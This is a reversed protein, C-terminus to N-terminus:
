RMMLFLVNTVVSLGLLIALGAIINTRSNVYAAMETMEAATAGGAIPEGFDDDGSSEALGELASAKQSAIMPPDGAMLCKLDLLLDEPNRYREERNKAMMTEVVEGFGSSLTTNLHDPPTLIVDKAVHKKMVETTTEGSYPVQGTVMHYLTAGLSYIDSRIDVDVQGRVQEPSIYYPTGIAMGAEAMAWKEDSTLRALGLDALKVNGDKTLIVNEPKIDRHILGKQHAHKLAEAVPIVIKLATKEDFVRGKELFDKITEGQVYEMVFYYHGNVEGADIANVVNNHSLKAAIKAERDFRKIFEKNQALQDLLVKVAVIRDVSKQKARYVVGMSGKGILELNEYGPIELKRQPETAVEQFLRRAQSETLAKAAIMVQLLGPPEGREKAIRARQQKCYELEQPTALGRRIISKELASEDLASIGRVDRSGSGSKSGSAAPTPSKAAPNSKAAPPSSPTSGGAPARPSPDTPIIEPGSAM